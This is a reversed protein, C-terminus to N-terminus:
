NVPGINDGRERQIGKSLMLVFSNKSVATVKMCMAIFTGNNKVFACKYETVAKNM